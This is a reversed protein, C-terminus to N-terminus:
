IESLYCTLFINIGPYEQELDKAVKKSSEKFKEAVYDSSLNRPFLDESYKIKADAIINITNENVSLLNFDVRRIVNPKKLNIEFKLRSIIENVNYNM